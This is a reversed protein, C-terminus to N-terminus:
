TCGGGGFTYGCEPCELEILGNYDLKGEGCRPCLFGSRLEATPQVQADPEADLELVPSPQEAAIMKEKRLHISGPFTENKGM